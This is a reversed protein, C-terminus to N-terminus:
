PNCGEACEWSLGEQLRVGRIRGECWPCRGEKVLMRLGEPRELLLAAVERAADDVVKGVTKRKKRIRDPDSASPQNGIASRKKM